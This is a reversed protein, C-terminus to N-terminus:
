GAPKRRRKLNAVVARAVDELELRWTKALYSLVIPASTPDALQGGIKVFPGDSETLVRNRPMAAVLERSRQSVIMAPNVSFYLGFRAARDIEGRSGTFWHLIVKGPFRDGIADITDASARRSHVTVVKDGYAACRELIKEFVERQRARLNRDSTSYDLGVEGVYDTRELCPWLQELQGGHTAILEPHLGAAASVFRSSAALRETHSFVSPANTVAITHVHWEDIRRALAVPDPFLDLHCHADVYEITSSTM